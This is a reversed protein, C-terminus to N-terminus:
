GVIIWVFKQELTCKLSLLIVAQQDNTNCRGGCPEPRNQDLASSIAMMKNGRLSITFYGHMFDM